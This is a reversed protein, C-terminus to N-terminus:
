RIRKKKACHALIDLARSALADRDFRTLALTRAAEGLTRRLDADHALNRVAEAFAEVNGQPCGLGAGAEELISRQWGGYNLLVPRGAALADFFKNASNLELIPVPAVCVLLVDAAAFFAPIDHKPAPPLFQVNTLGLQQGLAHLGSRENGEGVLVFLIRPDERLREATRIVAELGNVRGMAGAHLFIVKEGPAGWGLRGRIASGDMSPHFFETDCANPILHVARGPRCQPRIREAVGPALAVVAAAHHYICRELRGAMGLLFRSRLVGMAEPVAPWLDRVEFVFPRGRLWKALLAPIGVTLPTSTAYLVDVGPTLAAFRTARFMFSFFAWLRRPLSMTQRYPVRLAVVDIGEIRRRILWPWPPPGLDAETLQATSTLMTVQHGAAVWRRAMEYSRTGTKGHTTAFYQHIYLIHMAPPTYM